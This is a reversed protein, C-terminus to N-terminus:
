RTQSSRLILSRLIQTRMRADAHVAYFSSHVRAEDDFQNGADFTDALSVLGVPAALWLQEFETQLQGAQEPSLPRNGVWSFDGRWISWLQPWRRAFGTFGNLESYAMERLNQQGFVATPIVARRREFLPRGSGRNRFWALLLIPLTLIALGAALLRGFWPSRRDFGHEGRLSSLLFADTVEAFSNNEHNLLGDAWALSSRVLTLAGVYTAPGIWSSVVEANNDVMASNEIYAHPGIIAGDRVWVNDGLWCPANLKATDDVKCHLGAWVGPALERAGVRHGGAKPLWAALAAFFGAHSEFLPTEPMAPLRDAVVVDNPASLWGGAGTQFRERAQAATLECAEASLEIKLGWREGYGVVARVQDPRDSALIIVEKAGQDALHTLWHSLVSPGLVRVLALPGKRALFAVEPRRDPCIIVAKM